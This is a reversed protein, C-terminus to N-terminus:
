TPLAPDGIQLVGGSVKRYGSNSTEAFAEITVVSNDFLTLGSFSLSTGEDATTGMHFGDVKLRFYRAENSSAQPWSAGILSVPTTGGTPVVSRAVETWTNSPITIKALAESAALVRKQTTKGEIQIRQIRSGWRGDTSYIGFGFYMRGPGSRVADIMTQSVFGTQSGGIKGVSVRDSRLEIILQDNPSYTQSYRYPTAPTTSGNVLAFVRFGDSGFEAILMHTLTLNAALVVWAPRTVDNLVDGLTVTFTLPLQDIEQDVLRTYYTAASNDGAVFMDNFVFGPTLPSSSSTRSDFGTIPAWKLEDLNPFDLDMAIDYVGPWVEVSSSGTGVMVRKAQTASSGAGVLVNKADSTAHRLFPM